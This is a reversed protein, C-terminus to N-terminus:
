VVPLKKESRPRPVKALLYPKELVYTFLFRIGSIAQNHYSYSMHDGDVLKLFYAHVEEATAERASPTTVGLIQRCRLLKTKKTRNGLVSGRCAVHRIKVFGDPLVHLLFRRIFEFAPLRRVPSAWLPHLFVRGVAMM